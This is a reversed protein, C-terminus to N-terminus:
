DHCRFHNIFSKGLRKLMNTKVQLSHILIIKKVSKSAAYRFYLKNFLTDPQYRVRSLYQLSECLLSNDILMHVYQKKKLKGPNLKESFAERELSNIFFHSVFRRHIYTLFEDNSIRWKGALSLLTKRVYMTVDPRTVILSSSASNKPYVYYDYIIEPSFIMRNVHPYLDLNFIEDQQIRLPKFRIKNKIVFDRNYAKNWVFGNNFKMGSLLEVYIDRIEANTNLLLNPFIYEYSRRTTYSVEAYSFVAIEPSSKSIVEAIRKFADSRLQDDIDFFLLYEGTAKEIGTNRAPGPGLNPTHIVCIRDDIESLEDCLKGSNDTSGDDVLIWEFSSFSQSLISEAGQRIFPSVNHVPTIVSFYM